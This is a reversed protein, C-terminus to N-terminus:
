HTELERPTDITEPTADADLRRLRWTPWGFGDCGDIEQEVALVAPGHSVRCHFCLVSDTRVIRKVWFVHGIGYDGGCGSPRVVAVLDGAKIPGGSM